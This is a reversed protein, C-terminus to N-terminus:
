AASSRGLITEELVQAIGSGMLGSGIVTVKEVPARGVEGTSFRAAMVPLASPARAYLRSSARVASLM